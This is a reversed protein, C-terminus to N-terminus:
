VRSECAGAAPPMKEDTMPAVGVGGGCHASAGGKRRASPPPGRLCESSRCRELRSSLTRQAHGLDSSRAQARGRTAATPLANVTISRPRKPGLSLYVPPLPPMRSPALQPAPPRSRWLGAEGRPFHSHPRTPTRVPQAHFRSIIIQTHATSIRGPLYLWPGLYRTARPSCCARPKFKFHKGVLILAKYKKVRVASM